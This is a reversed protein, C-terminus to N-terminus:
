AIFRFLQSRIRDFESHADKLSALRDNMGRIVSIMDQLLYVAVPPHQEVLSRFLQRPIVVLRTPVTTRVTCGGHAGAIASFEGILGGAEVRGVPVLKTKDDGILVEAMGEVVLYVCAVEAGSGDDLVDGAPREVLSCKAALDRLIGAPLGAFLDLRELQEQVM